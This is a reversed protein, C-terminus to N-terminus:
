RGNNRNNVNKNNPRNFATQPVSKFEQSLKNLSDMLTEQLTKLDGKNAFEVLDEKTLYNTPINSSSNKDNSVNKSNGNEDIEDEVLKYTKLTCSGQSDSSKIFFRNNKSDLLHAMSNPPMFYAKAGIFGDVLLLPIASPQTTQPQQNQIPQQYSQQQYYYSPQQGYYNNQYPNQYGNLYNSYAM